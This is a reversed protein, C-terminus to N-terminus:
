EEMSDIEVVYILLCKSERIVRKIGFRICRLLWVWLM